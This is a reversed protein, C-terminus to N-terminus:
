DGLNENLQDLGMVDTKEINVRKKNDHKNWEIPDGKSDTIRARSDMKSSGDQNSLRVGDTQKKSRDNFRVKTNMREIEISVSTRDPPYILSYKPDRSLLKKENETLKIEASTVYPGLPAIPTPLDEPSDFIAATSFEDLDRPAVTPIVKGVIVEGGGMM